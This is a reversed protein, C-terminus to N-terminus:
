KIEKITSGTTYGFDKLVDTKFVFTHLENILQKDNRYSGDLLKVKMRNLSNFENKIERRQILVQKLIKVLKMQKVANCKGFEIFHYIDSIKNDSKSIESSLYNFRDLVEKKLEEYDNVANIYKQQLEEANM